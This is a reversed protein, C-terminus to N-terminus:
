EPRYRRLVDMFEQPAVMSSDVVFPDMNRRIFMVKWHRDGPAGVVQIPTYGGTLEFVFRGGGQVVELQGAHVSLRATPSAARIAWLALTLVFMTGAVGVTLTTPDDIAMVVAVVLGAAALLLLWGVLRRAGTRPAFEVDTSAGLVPEAPRPGPPEVPDVVAAAM